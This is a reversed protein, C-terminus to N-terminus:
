VRLLRMYAFLPTEARYYRAHTEEWGPRPAPHVFDQMEFGAARFMDYYTSVNRYYHTFGQIAGADGHQFIIKEHASPARDNGFWRLTQIQYGPNLVLAHYCAGPKLVRRMERLAVGVDLVNRIGFSITVADFSEDAAAIRMADGRVM